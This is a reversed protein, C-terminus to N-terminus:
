SGAIRRRRTWWLGSARRRGLFSIALLLAWTVVLSMLSAAVSIQASDQDFNVIWVQFTTYQDLTAMTYEGLVLAVTLVTGSLIASRLNPVLVRLLTTIWGGGLSRSADVLTVHDIARLGADLSRYAFPLSLMVYELSLLYPSSKLFSPAVQLVGVILVIPPVVIPLTTVADMARRLRPVRLHIYISTPVVLVLVILTTVIALRVSLSFAGGFGSQSFVSTFIGFDIGGGPQEVAFRISAFMPVLFYVGALGLVVFRWWAVRSARAALAAVATSGGPLSPRGATIAGM